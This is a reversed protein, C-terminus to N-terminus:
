EYFVKKRFLIKLSATGGSELTFTHLVGWKDKWFVSIQLQSIETNGYLDSLRYEAQPEYIINPQYDNGRFLPTVYDMLIYFQNANSVQLGGSLGYPSNASILEPVVYLHTTTFIISDIPNWFSFPPYECKSEIATYPSSPPSTLLDTNVEITNLGSPNQVFLLQYNANLVSNLPESYKIAPLSSFLYYFETNFFIKLGGSNIVTGKTDTTYVSADGILSINKDKYVLFPPKQTIGADQFDTVLQTNILNTFYEYDYCFYYPYRTYDAPVPSPPKPVSLDQPVWVIRKHLLMNNNEDFITYFYLTENVDVAGAVPEAIFIPLSQSDMQFSVISMFYDSPKSLYPQSRMEDFVLATSTEIPIPNGDKDYGTNNNKILINYYLDSAKQVGAVNKYYQAM